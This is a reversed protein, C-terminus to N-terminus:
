PVLKICFEVRRNKMRGEPTKNDAIPKTDAYGVASLKKEPYGCSNVFIRLVAIARAISLEWNSPYLPTSIPRNDTHGEIEMPLAFPKLKLCMNLILDKARPFLRASGSPFFKDTNIRVRLCEGAVAYDSWIGQKYLEDKIEQLTKKLKKYKIKKPYFDEMPIEIRRGESFVEKNFIVSKAGFASVLGKLVKYFKEISIVSMSYLLIFFTLLLSMLDGFSILWVPRKPCEEKKRHKLEM